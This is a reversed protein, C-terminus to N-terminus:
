PEATTAKTKRELAAEPEAMPTRLEKDKEGLSLYAGGATV